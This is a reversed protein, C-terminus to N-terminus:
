YKVAEEYDKEKRENINDLTASIEDTLLSEVDKMLNDEQLADRIAHARAKELRLKRNKGKLEDIKEQEQDYMLVDTAWDIFAVAWNYLNEYM